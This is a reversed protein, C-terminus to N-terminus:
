ARLHRPERHQHQYGQPGPAQQQLVRRSPSRQLVAGPVPTWWSYCRTSTSHLFSACTQHHLLVWTLLLLQAHAIDRCRYECSHPWLEVLFPLDELGEPGVAAAAAAKVVAPVGEALFTALATGGALMYSAPRARRSPSGARVIAQQKAPHRQGSHGRGPQQSPQGAPRHKRHTGTASATGAARKQAGARVGSGTAPQNSGPAARSHSRRGSQGTIARSRTGNSQRREGM